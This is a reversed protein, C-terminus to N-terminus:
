EMSEDEDKVDDEDKERDNGSREEQQSPAQQSKLKARKRAREDERAKARGKREKDFANYAEKYRESKEGEESAIEELKSLEARKQSGAYNGQEFVAYAEQYKESKRGEESATTKLKEEERQKWESIMKGDSRFEKEIEKEGDPMEDRKRKKRENSKRRKIEKQNETLEKKGPPTYHGKIKPMGISRLYYRAKAEWKKSEQDKAKQDKAKQNKAKQDKAQDDGSFYKKAYGKFGLKEIEPRAIERRKEDDKEKQIKRVERAALYKRREQEFLRESRSRKAEKGKQIGKLEEVTFSHYYIEKADCISEETHWVGGGKESIHGEERDTTIDMWAERGGDLPIVIDPQTLSSPVIFSKQRTYEIGEKDMLDYVREEIANGAWAQFLKEDKTELFVKAKPGNWDNFNAKRFEDEAQAVFERVKEAIDEVKKKEKDDRLGGATQFTAVMGSVSFVPLKRAEERNGVAAAVAESRKGRPPGTASLDPALSFLFLFCFIHIIRIM